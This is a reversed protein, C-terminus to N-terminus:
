SLDVIWSEVEARDPASPLLVLYANYDTIAPGPRNLSANATGRARYAFATLRDPSASHEIAFTLDNIAAEADGKWLLGIGRGVRSARDDPMLTICRSFDAIAADYHNLYIRTDGRWYYYNPTDPSEQIAASLLSDAGAYDAGLRAAMARDFAVRGPWPALDIPTTSVWTLLKQESKFLGVMLTLTRVGPKLAYDINMRVQGAGSQVPLQASSQRSSSTETNEFLFLLVFGNSTTQLRYSVVAEFPITNAPRDAAPTPTTLSVLELQDDTQDTQATTVGVPWLLAVALLLLPIM